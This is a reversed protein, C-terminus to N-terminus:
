LVVLHEFLTKAKIPKSIYDDMGADRCAQEDEKMANATMAMIYSRQQLGAEERERIKRTAELGGMVPMQIDMLVLDFPRQALADLAEQGNVALQVKHGWKNLLSIALKQNVVQDEVLLVELSRGVAQTESPLDPNVLRKRQQGTVVSQLAEQLDESAIPKSYYAAFGLAQCRQADGGLAASSLMVLPPIGSTPPAANLREAVTFGDMEPMHCDLIVADYPRAALAELAESGGVVADAHVGWKELLRSYITRNTANDDVVLMRKGALPTHEPLSLAEAKPEWGLQITFHFTSGVGPTSELWIRGGMLEVLRSSISLGLGTGGFHRTTSADEQSFAEFIMAQKYPAIGIGTDRVAMHLTKASAGDAAVADSWEVQVAVEGASTFKIANGVLNILVQRIRGPDGLLRGPPDSPVDALVELGKHHARMGLIRLTDSVLRGLHLPVHEILLKGAEIKSFDLIDNIITLLAESSSKVIQLYERQEATLETDLALDAMGIIGNMPTRIEHSMNALFESKARNAAEAAEKAQRMAAEASRLETLDMNVGVLREVKGHADRHPAASMHVHRILGDPLRLRFETVVSEQREYMTRLEAAVRGADDPHLRQFFLRDTGDFDASGLDYLDLMQQDCSMLGTRMDWEWLGIGATRTALELRRAADVLSQEALKRRTIDTRIATYRAPKGDLGLSPVLTAAVWYIGGAKNRNCIEGRWVKGSAITQWMDAFFAPDHQGSGIIRHNKGLVEEVSYGSIQCFKENAFTINGALDTTSVIAHEDLAFQQEKLERLSSERQQVLDRVLASVAQLNDTTQRVVGTTNQVGAAQGPWLETVLLNLEQLASERDQLESRLRNNLANMEASSLELSRSRLALDREYQDYTGEVRELFGGLNQLLRQLRPSHSLDLGAAEAQLAAFGTEEDWDLFKKLQRQLARHMFPTLIGFTHDGDHDPQSSQM